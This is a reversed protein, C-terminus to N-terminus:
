SEMQRTRPDLVAYAVDALINAVLVALTIVLFLGQMLPYDKANTADLLLKGLGPYSFVMEMVLTGGVIFGLSLAFSQLQPLVANRSAYQTLVRRQRLGKAQAVTVYDEDLVTVMMNRMGLIWGGLSSVIITLAPLTGHAIVEGIFDWSWAPVSGKDYAHSAPLWGLTTSFLAIVVLAMWFYPVTSFFTAFPVVYDARSGRRWGVISGLTTGLLFSIITALGVLGVTWPIASAIVESVPALGNSFSVGLDGRLLQGWYDVYQQWLSADSDLGFLTRLSDIAEPSVKGQNKQLYATVPDGKLMRPLFFNITIAAWATFLYFALRRLLFRM